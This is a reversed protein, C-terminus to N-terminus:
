ALRLKQPSGERVLVDTAELHLKVSTTYWGVSADDWLEAPTRREVESALDAFPLVGAEEVAAVIADRVPEYMDRRIRVDDRGTNPNKMM